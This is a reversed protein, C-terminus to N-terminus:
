PPYLINFSTRLIEDLYKIFPYGPLFAKGVHFQTSRKLLRSDVICDKYGKNRKNTKARLQFCWGANSISTVLFLSLSYEIHIKINCFMIDTNHANICFTICMLLIHVENTIFTVCSINCKYFLLTSSLPFWAKIYYFASNNGVVNAECAIIVLLFIFILRYLYLCSKKYKIKCNIM